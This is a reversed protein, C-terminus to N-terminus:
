AGQADAEQCHVRVVEGSIQRSGLPAVFFVPFTLLVILLIVIGAIIMLKKRINRKM